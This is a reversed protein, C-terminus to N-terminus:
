HPGVFGGHKVKFENTIFEVLARDILAEVTTGANKAMDHIEIYHREAVEVTRMVVPEAVPSAGARAQYKKRLQVHFAGLPFEDDMSLAIWEKVNAEPIRLSGARRWKSNVDCEVYKRVFRHGEISQRIRSYDINREYVEELEDSLTEMADFVKDWAITLRNDVWSLARKKHLAAFLIQGALGDYDRQRAGSIPFRFIRDFLVGYAIKKGFPFGERSLKIGAKVSRLDVRLEELAYMWYPAAQRIMFPDFPLPGRSHSTDHVLDWAAFMDMILNLSQLFDKLEPPTNLQVIDACINVARQFRKAERDCFIVGFNNPDRGEISIMESFLVACESRYGGTYDILHGPVFKSNHFEDEEMRALWPYWPVRFTLAEFHKTLSHNPTYMPFVVLHEINERRLAQPNFKKLSAVFNPKGFGGAEWADFDHVLQSLYEEDHPYRPSLKVISDKIVGVLEKVKDHDKIEVVYSGDPQRTEQHFSRLADVSRKLTLWEHLPRQEDGKLVVRPVRGFAFESLWYMLNLWLQLHDFRGIYEDGFLDSDNIVAVHGKGFTAVAALAAGAPRAAASSTLLARAPERVRCSGSRYFCVKRVGILLNDHVPVTALVHTKEENLSHDEDRVTSYHEIDIGFESVLENLNNKYKQNEYETIVLLGGGANVFNHIATIEDPLLKPSHSSTTREIEPDCPHVLVLVDKGELLEADIHRDVNRVIAFERSALAQGAIDYSSNGGRGPQMEAAKESSVSWSESHFEDFLVTAIKRSALQSNIM